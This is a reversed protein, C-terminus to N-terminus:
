FTEELKPAGLKHEEPPKDPEKAAASPADPPKVGPGVRPRGGPGTPPHNGVPVPPVPPQAAVSSPSASTGGDIAAALASTSASTSATTAVAPVDPVHAALGTSAAVPEHNPDGTVHSGGVFKVVAFGGGIALVAAACVGILMGPGRKGASGGDTPGDLLAQARPPPVSMASHTAPAREQIGPSSARTPDAWPSALQPPTQPPMPPRPAEPFPATGMRGRANPDAFPAMEGGPVRSPVADGSPRLGSIQPQLLTLRERVMSMDAPRAAPDRSMMEACLYELAPHAGPLVDSLRPPPSTMIQLITQEYTPMEAFPPTGALMEFLVAGLSYIDTRHDVSPLGQAQEPSMYQPTGIVMGMRTLGLGQSKQNADRLLKAIGFDVLKVLTSGDDRTCLFVNAPKLDRHVIGIAHARALGQAAQIAISVAGAPSIRGKRALLSALDEGKLLEMVIFLGHNPDEGADFVQVVNESEIQGTSKAEQKIRAAIHPDHAHVTHVLKIAVRRGIELHEGEYVGGMGGEGILRKIKYRGVLVKGLAADGALSEREPAKDQPIVTEAVPSTGPMAPPPQSPVISTAGFADPPPKGNETM